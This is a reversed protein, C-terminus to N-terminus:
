RRASSGSFVNQFFRRFAGAALLGRTTADAALDAPRQGRDNKLRVNAGSAKLLRVIDAHGARAAHHLATNGRADVRDVGVGAQILTQVAAADGEAAFFQLPTLGDAGAQQLDFGGTKLKGRLAADPSQAVVRIVRARDGPAPMAGADLLNRLQKYGFRRAMSKDALQATDILDLAAQVHGEIDANPQAIVGENFLSKLVSPVDVSRFEEYGLANRLIAQRDADSVAAGAGILRRVARFLALDVGGAFTNIELAVGIEKLLSQLPTLGSASVLNLDVGPIERLAQLSCRSDLAVEAVIRHRLADSALRFLEAANDAKGSRLALKFLGLRERENGLLGARELARVNEPGGDVVAAEVPTRGATRSAPPFCAEHQVDDLNLSVSHDRRALDGGAQRLADFTAAFARSHLEGGRHGFLHHLATQGQGDPRNISDVEAPLWAALSGTQDQPASQRAERDELLYRVGRQDRHGAAVQLPTVGARNPQQLNEGAAALAALAETNGHAAAHHAATYGNDDERLPSLGAARLLEFREGLSLGGAGFVPADLDPEPQAFDDTGMAALAHPLFDTPARNNHEFGQRLEGAISSESVLGHRILTMVGRFAERDAGTMVVASLPLGHPLAFLAAVVEKEAEGGEPVRVPSSASAQLGRQSLLGVLDITPGQSPGASSGAAEDNAAANRIEAQFRQWNSLADKPM